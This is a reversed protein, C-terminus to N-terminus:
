AKLSEAFFDEVTLRRKTLGDAFASRCFVDVAQRNKPLGHSHYDIGM